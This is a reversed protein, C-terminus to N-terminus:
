HMYEEMLKKKELCFGAYSIKVHSSNLRTSKRDLTAIVDARRLSYKVTGDSRDVSGSLDGKRVVIATPGPRDIAAQVATEVLDALDSSRRTPLPPLDLPAPYSHCSIPAPPLTVHIC